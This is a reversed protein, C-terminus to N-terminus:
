ASGFRAAYSRRQSVGFLRDFVLNTILHPLQEIANLRVCHTRDSVTHRKVDTQIGIALEDIGDQALQISAIRATVADNPAGDTLLVVLKRPESRSSLLWRAARYAQDTPTSADTDAVITAFTPALSQGFSVIPGDPFCVTACVCGQISNIARHLVHAAVAAGFGRCTLPDMAARPDESLLMSSSIDRLIVVAADPAPAHRSRLFLRDGGTLHNGSTLARTNIRTGSRSPRRSYSETILRQSLASAIRQTLRSSQDLANPRVQVQHTEAPTRTSGQRLIQKIGDIGEQPTHEDMARVLEETSFGKQAESDDGANDETLNNTEEEHNPKPSQSSSGAQSPEWEDEAKSDSASGDAPGNPQGTSGESANQASHDTDGTSDDGVNGPESPATVDESGETTSSASTSTDDMQQDDSGNATDQSSDQQPESTASDRQDSGHDQNEYSTSGDAKDSSETQQRHTSIDDASQPPPLRLTHNIEEAIRIVDATCSLRDFHDVFPQLLAQIAPSVVAQDKIVQYDPQQRWRIRLTAHLWNVVASIPSWQTPDGYYGADLAVLGLADLRQKAGPFSRLHLLEQRVDEFVNVLTQVVPTVGRAHMAKLQDFQTHNCHGVEHHVLGLCAAALKLTCDLSQPACINITNGDTAGWSHPDVVTVIQIKSSVMSQALPPLTAHIINPPLNAPIGLADCLRADLTAHSMPTEGLNPTVSASLALTM